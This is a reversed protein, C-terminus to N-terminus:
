KKKQTTTKDLEREMKEFMDSILTSASFPTNGWFKSQFVIENSITDTVFMNFKDCTYHFLDWGCESNYDVVLKADNKNEIVDFGLRIFNKKVTSNIEAVDAHGYIFVKKNKDILDPRNIQVKNIACGSNFLLVSLTILFFLVYTKTFRAM